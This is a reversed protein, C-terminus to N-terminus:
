PRTIASLLTKITPDLMMFPKLKGYIEKQVETILNAIESLTKETGNGIRDKIITGYIDDFAQGLDSFYSFEKNYKVAYCYKDVWISIDKNYTYVLKLQGTNKEM